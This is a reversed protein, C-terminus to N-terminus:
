HKFYSLIKEDIHRCLMNLLEHITSINGMCVSMNFAFTKFDFTFKYYSNSGAEFKAACCYKEEIKKCAEIALTNDRDKEWILEYDDLSLMPSPKNKPKYVKIIDFASFAKDTLDEDWNNISSYSYDQYIIIKESGNGVIGYGQGRFEVLYGNKLDDITM